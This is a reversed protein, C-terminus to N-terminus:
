RLFLTKENPQNRRVAANALSEGPLPRQLLAEANVRLTGQIPLWACEANFNIAQHPLTGFMLRVLFGVGKVRAAKIFLSKRLAWAARESHRSDDTARACGRFTTAM